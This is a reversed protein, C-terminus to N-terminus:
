ADIRNSRKLNFLRHTELRESFWLIKLNPNFGTRNERWWVGNRCIHFTLWWQLQHGWEVDCHLRVAFRTLAAVIWLMEASGCMELAFKDLRMLLISPRYVWPHWLQDCIPALIASFLVFPPSKLILKRNIKARLALIFLFSIKFLGVNTGTPALRARKSPLDTIGTYLYCEGLRACSMVRHTKM